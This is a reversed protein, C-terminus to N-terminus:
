VRRAKKPRPGNHPIPTADKISVLNPVRAALTRIVSDRGAGIGKVIINLNKISTESIVESVLEAVKSAAYPTGKKTGRFGLAGASSAFLVAGSMDSLTIITNNYTSLIHAIASETKIKSVRGSLPKARQFVDESKTSKKIIRKKGM